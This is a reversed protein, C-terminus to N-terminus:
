ESIGEAEHVKKQSVHTPIVLVVIFAIAILIPVMIYARSIGFQDDLLGLALPALAIAIGAALSSLGIAQDPRGDSLYILRLSALAFQTSLGVGILFLGLISVAYIHSFWFVAFGIFQIGIVTLLQQDLHLRYLIQGMYWRGLGMGIGYALMVTTASASTGGIRDKFLSAAWFATAFESAICAIFGIWSIWFKFSMKGNQRTHEEFVQDIYNKDRVFLYIFISFPVVLFLGLRWQDPYNTAITGILLTGAIFGVSAVANAQSITLAAKDGAHRNLMTLGNNVVTSTGFGAVLISVLTTPYTPFLIFASLGACFLALGLWSLKVRGYRHALRSNLAGAAIAAIGLATGHLGAQAGTTGQDERLLGQSPGFGGLFMNIAATQFAVQWFFRDRVVNRPM